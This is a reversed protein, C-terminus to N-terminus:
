RCGDRSRRSWWGRGWFRWRLWGLGVRVGLVLIAIVGAREDGSVHGNVGDLGEALSPFAGNHIRGPGVCPPGYVVAFAIAHATETIESTEIGDLDAHGDLVPAAERHISVGWSILATPNEPTDYILAVGTTRLV